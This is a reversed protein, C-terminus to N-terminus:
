RAAESRKASSHCPFGVLSAPITAGCSACRGQTVEHRRMKQSARHRREQDTDTSKTHDM